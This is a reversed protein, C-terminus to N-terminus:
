TRRRGTTDRTIPLTDVVANPHRLRFIKDQLDDIKSKLIGDRQRKLDAIQVRLVSENYAAIESASMHEEAMVVTNQNLDNKPM